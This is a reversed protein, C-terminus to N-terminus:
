KLLYAPIVLNWKYWRDGPSSAIDGLLKRGMRMSKDYVGPNETADALLYLASVLFGHAGGLPSDGWKVGVTQDFHNVPIPNGDLYLPAYYRLGDAILGYKPDQFNSVWAYETSHAVNEAIELAKPQAFFKAAGLYGYVVAAHQWPMFFETVGPFGAGSYPGQMVFCKSAHWKMNEADAVELVRRVAHQRISDDGSALWCQVFGMMCWGEARAAQLHMTSANKLRMTGKLCHGLLRLEEKAWADNSVTWYDYLLDSSWHETDYHTFGHGRANFNWEVLTRYGPYPDQVRWIRRRGFSESSLDRSSPFVPPMDWLLVNEESGVELGHLHYTRLAQVWAKQELAQLLQPFEGQIAHALEPSIPANRPTGTTATEKVDGFDGWTGFRTTAGDWSGFEGAARAKADPPGDIPGGFLGMAGTGQWTALDALPFLPRDHFANFGVRWSALEQQSAAPDEIRLNFRYRRTQGDDIYTSEMVKMVGWGRGDGVIDAVGHKQKLYPQADEAGRVLFSAEMCDITGLPFYNPDTRGTTDDAGLYDNGLIWDVQVFPMDRFRTIYFTSTLFDRGIGSASVARHYTRHRVTQVLYTQQLTETTAGAIESEYEVGFTDKVRAGIRLGAGRKRVWPHAEFPGSAPTVDKVIEYRTTTAAPLSDTFQAQALRISGDPWQQMPLWATGIGRVGVRDLAFIQGEVFPVSARITETRALGAENAVVLVPTLNLNKGNGGGRNGGGGGGGNGTTGGGSGCAALLLLIAAGVGLAAPHVHGGTAEAASVVSTTQINHM